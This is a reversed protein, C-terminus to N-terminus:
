ADPDGKWEDYSDEAIVRVEDLDIDLQEAARRIRQDTQWYTDPMGGDVAITLVDRALRDALSEPM